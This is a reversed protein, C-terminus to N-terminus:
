SDIGSGTLEFMSETSISTLDAQVSYTCDGDTASLYIEKAKINMSLKDNKNELKWYHKNSIVGPYSGTSKFGMYAIGGGSESGTPYGPPVNAEYEGYAPTTVSASANPFDPNGNLIARRETSRNWFKSTTDDPKPSANTDFDYWILKQANVNDLTWNWNWKEKDLASGTPTAIYFRGDDSIPISASANPFTACSGTIARPDTSNNYLSGTTDGSNRNCDYWILKQANVDDTFWDWNWSVWSEFGVPYAYPVDTTFGGRDDHRITGTMHTFRHDHDALGSVDFTSQAATGTAHNYLYSLTDQPIDSGPSSGSDSLWWIRKDPHTCGFWDTMYFAHPSGPQRDNLAEYYGPPFVFDEDVTPNVMSVLKFSIKPCIAQRYVEDGSLSASVHIDVARPYLDNIAGSLYQPAGGPVTPDGNYYRCYNTDVTRNLCKRFNDASEEATAGLQVKIGQNANYSPDAQTSVDAYFRWWYDKFGWGAHWEPPIRIGWRTNAVANSSTVVFGKAGNYFTGDTGNDYFCGYKVPDGASGTQFITTLDENYNGANYLEAVQDANLARNNWMIFDKYVGINSANAGGWPSGIQPTYDVNWAVDNRYQTPYPSTGVWSDHLVGDIYFAMKNGIVVNLRDYVITYHRWQRPDPMNTFQKNLRYSSQTQIRFSAAADTGGPTGWDSFGFFHSGPSGDELGFGYVLMMPDGDYTYGSTSPDGTMKMWFSLSTTMGQLQGASNYGPFCAEPANPNKAIFGGHDVDKNEWSQAVGKPMEGAAAPVATSAPLGTWGTVSASTPARVRVYQALNSDQESTVWVDVGGETNPSMSASLGPVGEQIGGPMTPASVKYQAVTGLGNIADVLNIADAAPDGTACKVVMDIGAPISGPITGAQQLTIFKPESLTAGNQKWGAPLYLQFNSGDQSNELNFGKNGGTYTYQDLISLASEDSKSGFTHQYAGEYSYVFSSSPYSTRVPLPTEYDVNNHKAFIAAIDDTSLPRDWLVANRVQMPASEDQPNSPDGFTLYRYQSTAIVHGATLNYTKREVGDVYIVASDRKQVITYFQWKSWDTGALSFGTESETTDSQTAPDYSKKPCFSYNEGPNNAGYIRFYWTNEASGGPNVLNTAFGVLSRKGNGPEGWTTSRSTVKAWFSVTFERGDTLWPPAQAKFGGSGSAIIEYCGDDSSYPMNAVANPTMFAGRDDTYPTRIRLYQALSQDQDEAVWMDVGGQINPSVSASFGPLGETMGGPMTSTNVNYQDTTGLGNIADVFNVSSSLPTIPSNEGAEGTWVRVLMDDYTPAALPTATQGTLRINIDKYETLTVGNHKWGIPLRIQVTSDSKPAMFRWGKDGSTYTYQDPYSVSSPPPGDRSAITRTYATGDAFSFSSSPYDRNPLATKYDYEDGSNYIATIDADKLARDWVVLDIINIQASENTNNPDGIQLYRVLNGTDIVEGPNATITKEPTTNGNMHLSLQNKTQVLTYFNWDTSTFSPTWDDTVLNNDATRFRMRYNNAGLVRLSWRGENQGSPSAAFGVITSYVPAANVKAWFSVTFEKGDTTWAQGQTVAGGDNNTVKYSGNDIEGGVESDLQVTINRAVSPFEIKVEDGSALTARKIFPTGSVQYSGVNRLGTSPTYKKAM